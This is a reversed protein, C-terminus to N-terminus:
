ASATQGAKQQSFQQQLKMEMVDMVADRIRNKENGIAQVKEMQETVYKVKKTFYEKANPIDKEVYYGTGVDVVVKEPDKLKGPVYMSGTLPVLIDKDANGPSCKTLAEGSEQFRFFMSNFYTLTKPRCRSSHTWNPSFSPKKLRNHHLLTSVQKSCAELEPHIRPLITSRPGIPEQVSDTAYSQAQHSRHSADQKERCRYLFGNHNESKGSFSITLPPRPSNTTNHIFCASGCGCSSSREATAEIGQPNIQLPFPLFDEFSRLWSALILSLPLYTIIPPSLDLSSDSLFLSVHLNNM